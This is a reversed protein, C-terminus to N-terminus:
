APTVRLASPMGYRLVHHDPQVEAQHRGCHGRLLPRTPLFAVLPERVPPLTRDTTSLLASWRTRAHGPRNLPRSHPGDRYRLHLM